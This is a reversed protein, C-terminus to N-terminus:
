HKTPSTGAFYYLDFIGQLRRVNQISLGMGPRGELSAVICHQGFVLFAGWTRRPAEKRHPFM